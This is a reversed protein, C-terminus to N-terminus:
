LGMKEAVKERWFDANGYSLQAEKGRTTYFHLDHEGTVGVAGFIQHAKTICWEYSEASWVKAITTERAAPLGESIRWAAQYSVFRLGDVYTAMDALYQQIVQFAGIPRGFQKREKAYHLTMELVKQLVGMTDCCVAAAARELTKEVIPWGAGMGGLVSDKSVTVNDFTVECLKDGSMTQLPTYKIGKEKAPVIFVTINKRDDKENGTRTACLIYDAVHAYPVFIKTGNIIYDNREAFATTAISGAEYLGDTENLAMTVIIKGAAIQPLYAAKQNENGNELITLAGLVVTVFFPGPLCARGMEELLVALDTFEMGSGGYLDPIALGLWGLGAMAQWLAPSYGKEDSAMQRVYTKSCKDALFDRASKRLMEQEESLTFDM